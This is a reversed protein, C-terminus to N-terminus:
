DKFRRLYKINLLEGYPISAPQLLNFWPNGDQQLVQIDQAPMFSQALIFQKQHAANEVVDMVIFCHGPSGGHIFVDGPQLDSIQDVKVLEKELSLTGAYSFILNMYSLFGLYSFNEGSKLVWKDKVYRYGKAYHAYDCHFGSTFNFSIQNYKKQHYLYEARLRMVADACQQLDQKGVSIDLVAATYYDTRAINGRYTKTPTGTPKLALHSLYSGFDSINAQRVFGAPPTFRTLINDNSTFALCIALIIIAATIKM